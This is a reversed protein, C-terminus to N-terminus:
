ATRLLTSRWTAQLECLAKERGEADLRRALGVMNADAFWVWDQGEPLDLIHIVTKETTM